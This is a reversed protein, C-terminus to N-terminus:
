RVISQNGEGGGEELNIGKKEGKRGKGKKSASPSKEGKSEKKKDLFIVM